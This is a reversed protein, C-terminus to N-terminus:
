ARFAWIGLLAWGILFALGGIPTIVGWAKVGSLSLIYLSGSFIVIGALFFYGAATVLSAPSNSSLWAIIFLALGHIFQYRVATEFVAKMPDSLVDKLGHAGFAGLAVGLFM